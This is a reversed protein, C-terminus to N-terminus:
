AVEAGLHLSSIMTIFISLRVTDFKLCGFLHQLMVKLEVVQLLGHAIYLRSYLTVTVADLAPIFAM